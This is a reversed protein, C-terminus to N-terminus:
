RSGALGAIDGQSFAGNTPDYEIANNQSIGDPGVSHLGHGERTLPYQLLKGSFPDLPKEPLYRPVLALLSEPYGGTANKYQELAVIVRALRVKADRIAFRTEAEVFDPIIGAALTNEESLRKVKAKWAERDRDWIPISFEVLSEELFTRMPSLFAQPDKLLEDIEEDTLGSVEKLMKRANAASPEQPTLLKELESLSINMEADMFPIIPQNTEDVHQLTKAAQALQESTLNGSAALAQLPRVAIGEVACSILGGILVANETGYDRGMLLTTLYNDLAEGYEGESEYYLGQACLLKSTVQAFLYNPIPTSCGKERPDPMVAYDMAVGQRILQFQPEYLGFLPLLDRSQESWGKKVTSNLPEPEPMPAKLLAAQQYDIMANDRGTEAKMKLLAALFPNEQGPAETAFNSPQVKACVLDGLPKASSLAHLREGGDDKGDPGISYVVPEGGDHPVRYRYPQGSAYPDLPLSQILDEMALLDTLQEPPKGNKQHYALLLHGLLDLDKVVTRLRQKEESSRFFPYFTYHRLAGAFDNADTDFVVRVIDGSSITGNTPDYNVIGRDDVGDPGVTWLLLDEDPQSIGWQVTRGGAFPDEPLNSLYAIPTTLAELHLPYENHDVFYTELAVHVSRLASKAQSVKESVAEDTLLSAPAQAFIGGCTLSIAALIALGTAALLGLRAPRSLPDTVLAAIRKGIQTRTAFLGSSFSAQRKMQIGELISYLQRAYDRAQAEQEILARDCALEAEEEWRHGAWHVVPHFFFLARSLQRLVLFWPDRNRHHRLEHRMAWETKAGADSAMWAPLLITPFFYGVLAPCEIGGSIRLAPRRRLGLQEALQRYQRQLSPPPAQSDRILSRLRQQDRLMGGGMLLCGMLWVSFAIQGWSPRGWLAPTAPRPAPAFGSSPSEEVPVASERSGASRAGEGDQWLAFRDGALQRALLFDLSTPEDLVAPAQFQHVPVPTGIVLGFLPKALVLLWLFAKLRPSRVRFLRIFAWVLGALLIVELSVLLLRQSVLGAFSEFWTGFSFANGTLSTM